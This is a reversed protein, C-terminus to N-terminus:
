QATNGLRRVKYFRIVREATPQSIRHFEMKTEVLDDDPDQSDSLRMCYIANLTSLHFGIAKLLCAVAGSWRGMILSEVDGISLGSLQAVAGIVDDIQKDQALARIEDETLAASKAVPRKAVTKRTESTKFLEDILSAHRPDAAKLRQVVTKSAKMILQRLQAEPIDKRLGIAESLLDSGASKEVLLRFGTGSIRAGQNRVLTDLVQTGGRKIVQNSVKESLTERTAIAHLHDQGKTKACQVLTDDDLDTSKTLIPRAVSIDDDLALSRITNRPAGSIPALRQALEARARTEIREVLKAFIDDYIGLQNESYRGANVLFLDTVQRLISATEGSRTSIAHELESLINKSQM